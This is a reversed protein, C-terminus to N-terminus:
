LLRKPYKYDTLERITEEFDDILFKNENKKYWSVANEAIHKYKGYNDLYHQLKENNNEIDSLPIYHEFPRVGLRDIDPIEDPFIPIAGSGLTEYYKWALIKHKMRGFIVYKASGLYESWKNLYRVITNTEPDIFKAPGNWLFSTAGVKHSFEVRYKEGLSKIQNNLKLRDKYVPSAIAGIVLLDLKKANLNSRTLFLSPWLPYFAMKTHAPFKYNNKWQTPYSTLFVDPQAWDIVWQYGAPTDWFDHGYLVVSIDPRKFKPQAGENFMLLFDYKSWDIGIPPEQMIDSQFITAM